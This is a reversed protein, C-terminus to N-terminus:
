LKHIGRYFGRSGGSYLGIYGVYGGYLRWIVGM